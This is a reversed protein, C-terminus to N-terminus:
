KLVASFHSLIVAERKKLGKCTLGMFHDSMSVCNTPLLLYITQTHKVMKHTQRMFLETKIYQLSPKLQIM